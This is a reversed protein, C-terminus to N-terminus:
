MRDAPPTKTDAPGEEVFEVKLESRTIAVVHFPATLVQITMTGPGPASKRVFVKLRDTEVATRRIEITYGGTNRRGLTAAIVMEGAFDVEPMQVAPQRGAHRAWWKQFTERDRIVERTSEAIGSM